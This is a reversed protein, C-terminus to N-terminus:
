SINMYADKSTTVVSLPSISQPETYEGNNKVSLRVTKMCDIMGLIDDSLYVQEDLKLHKVKKTEPIYNM